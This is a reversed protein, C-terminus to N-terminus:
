KEYGSAGLSLSRGHICLVLICMPMNLIKRYLTNFPPVSFMQHTKTLPIGFLKKNKNKYDLKNM